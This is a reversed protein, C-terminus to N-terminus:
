RCKLPFVSCVSSMGLKLSFNRKEYELDILIGVETVM